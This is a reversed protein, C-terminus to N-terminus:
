QQGKRDQWEFSLLFSPPRADTSLAHRSATTLRGNMSWCSDYNFLADPHRRKCADLSHNSILPPLLSVRRRGTDLDRTTWRLTSRAFNQCAGAARGLGELIGFDKLSSARRASSTIWAALAPM